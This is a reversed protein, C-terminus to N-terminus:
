LSKKLKNIVVDLFEEFSMQKYDTIMESLLVELEDSLYSNKSISKTHGIIMATEEISKSILKKIPLKALDSENKFGTDYIVRLFTMNAGYTRFDKITLEVKKLRENLMKETFSKNIIEGNSEKAIYSFILNEKDETEQYLRFLVSFLLKQKTAHCKFMQDKGTKGKFQIVITQNNEFSLNKKKLTLLGVTQNTDLYIQKGLRIFFTLELLLISAFIYNKSRDVEEIGKNIINQVIEMKDYVKLFTKLKNNKRNLIYNVGYRYQEKKKDDYGKYVLGNDADEMTEHPIIKIDNLYLMDKYKDLIKYIIHTSPIVINNQLILKQKKDYTYFLTYKENRFLTGQQDFLYFDKASIYFDNM